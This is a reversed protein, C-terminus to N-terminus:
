EDIGATNPPGVLDVFQQKTRVAWGIFQAAGEVGLRGSNVVIDYATARVAHALEPNRKM